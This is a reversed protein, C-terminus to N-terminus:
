EIDEIKYYRELDSSSLFDVRSDYEGLVSFVYCDGYSKKVFELCYTGSRNIIVDGEELDKPNIM